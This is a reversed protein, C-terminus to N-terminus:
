DWKKVENLSCGQANLVEVGSNGAVGPTHVFVVLKLNEKKVYKGSIDLNNMELITYNDGPKMSFADGEPKTTLVGRFVHEHIYGAPAATQGSADLKDETLFVSIKVNEPLSANRGVFVKLNVNDGTTESILAMGVNAKKALRTATASEWDGKEIRDVVASPYSNPNGLIALLKGGDSMEYKDNYHVAVGYVRGLNDSVIKNLKEGGAPCAHCWEGTNEEIIAKKTFDAPVDGVLELPNEETGGGTPNTWVPSKGSTNSNNKKCSTFSLAAVAVILSLSLLNKM